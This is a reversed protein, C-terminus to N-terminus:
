VVDTPRKRALQSATEEIRHNGGASSTALIAAPWASAIPGGGPESAKIARTANRRARRSRTGAQEGELVEGAGRSPM